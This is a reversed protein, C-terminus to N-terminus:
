PNCRSTRINPLWRKPSAPTVRRRRKRDSLVARKSSRARRGSSIPLPMLAWSGAAKNDFDVFGAYKGKPPANELIFVPIGARNAQQVGAILLTADVPNLLLADPQKSVANLVQTVQLNPDGKGDIVNIDIGADAARKKIGGVLAVQYEFQLGFAVYEVHKGKAGTKAALAQNGILTAASLGAAATASLQLFNRRTWHM